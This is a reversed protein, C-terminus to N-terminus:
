KIIYKYLKVRKGNDRKEGIIETTIKMNSYLGLISNINYCLNKITKRIVENRRNMKRLICMEKGYERIDYFYDIFTNMEDKSFSINELENITNVNFKKLMKNICLKRANVKKLKIKITNKKPYLEQTKERKWNFYDDYYNYRPIKVM